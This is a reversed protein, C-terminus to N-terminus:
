RRVRYVGYDRVVCGTPAQARMLETCYSCAVCCKKPDLAGHEMLDAPADPYAFAGRGLGAITAMGDRIVASAVNPWFQRLWSYGTGVVPVQPTERQVAAALDILRTVGVLPHEPPPTGGGAMRDCPRGLHAVRAPIGATVNLLGCGAMQLRRVLALPEALDTTLSGDPAMGFGYPYPIGDTANLRAALTVGPARDRAREIVGTLLRARNDFSGGYRSAQRTYAGLLEHLLYGHCAKVDVADFGAEAALAVAEVFVDALADLEEDRWTSTSQGPVDLHPNACAIRRPAPSGGPNSFRGSHTLQLVLIPDHRPGFRRVAASRTASALRAFSGVSAPSLLLQRPNARGDPAVSTAEFWIL